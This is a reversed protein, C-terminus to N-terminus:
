GAVLRLRKLKSPGRACWRLLSTGALGRGGGAEERWGDASSCLGDLDAAAEGAPM